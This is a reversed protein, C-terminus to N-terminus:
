VRGKIRVKDVVEFAHAGNAYQSWLQRYIDEELLLVDDYDDSPHSTGEDLGHPFELGGVDTLIYRNHLSQGDNSRRLTYVLASLQHPLIDAMKSLSLDNRSRKRKESRHIEIHPFVASSPRSSRGRYRSDVIERFYRNFPQIYRPITSFHPDVFLITSAIQLMPSVIEQLNSAARLVRRQTPLYWMSTQHDISGSHLVREHSRPNENSVIAHFPAVCHESETNALWSKSDDWSLAPRKIMKASVDKLIATMRRENLDTCNGSRRFEEWVRTKWSQPFRSMIRPTGVGFERAFFRGLERRYWTAVVVPDVAFEYIM